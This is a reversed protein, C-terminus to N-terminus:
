ATSKSETAVTRIIVNGRRRSNWKIKELSSISRSFKEVAIHLAEELTPAREHFFINQGYVEAYLTAKYELAEPKDRLNLIKFHVFSNMPLRDTHGSLLKEIRKKLLTDGRLKGLLKVSLM